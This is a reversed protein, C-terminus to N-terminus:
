KLQFLTIQSNVYNCFQTIIEKDNSSFLYYHFGYLPQIEYNIKTRNLDLYFQFDRNYFLGNNHKELQIRMANNFKVIFIDQFSYITANLKLSNNPILINDFGNNILNIFNIMKNKDISSIYNYLTQEGLIKTLLKNNVFHLKSKFLSSNYTLVYHNNIRTYAYM